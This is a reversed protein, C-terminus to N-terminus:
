IETLHNRKLVFSKPLTNDNVSKEVLATKNVAKGFVCHIFLLDLKSFYRNFCVFM